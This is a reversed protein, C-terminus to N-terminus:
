AGDREIAIEQDRRAPAGAQRIQRGGIVFRNQGIECAPLALVAPLHHNARLARRMEHPMHMGGIRRRREQIVLRATGTARLVAADGGVALERRTGIEGLHRAVEAGLAETLDPAARRQEALQPFAREAAFASPALVLLEAAAAARARERELAVDEGGIGRADVFGCTGGDDLRLVLDRVPLLESGYERPRCSGQRPEITNRREHAAHHRLADLVPRPLAASIWKINAANTSPTGIKATTASPIPM